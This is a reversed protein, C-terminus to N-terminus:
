SAFRTIPAHLDFILAEPLRCGLVSELWDRHRELHALRAMSSHAIRLETPQSLSGAAQRPHAAPDDQAAQDSPRDRDQM